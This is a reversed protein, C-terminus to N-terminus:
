KFLELILVLAYGVLYVSVLGYIVKQPLEGVTFQHVRIFVVKVLDGVLFIVAFPLLYRDNGALLALVIGWHALNNTLIFVMSIIERYQIRDAIGVTLGLALIGMVITQALRVGSPVAFGAGSFASVLAIIGIVQGVGKILTEAWALPPWTALYWKRPTTM